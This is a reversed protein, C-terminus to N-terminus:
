PLSKNLIINTLEFNIVDLFLFFDNQALTSRTLQQRPERQRPSNGHDQRGSRAHNRQRRRRHRNPPYRPFRPLDLKREDGGPWGLVAPLGGPMTMSMRGVMYKAMSALQTVDQVRWIPLDAARYLLLARLAEVETQLRRSNTIFSKPQQPDTPWLGRRQRTYDITEEIAMEMARIGRATVFMREEQFQRMQYIFGMGEEGILNRSRCGCMTSSCSRRIRVAYCWSTSSARSALGRADEAARRDPIQEQAARWRRFYQLAPLDLRGARRQHDVNELRQDCLRRRRAAGHHPNELRRFRRLGESVGICGVLSAPSPRSWFSKSLNRAAMNKWLRRACRPRCGSRRASGAPASMAWPKPSSWKMPSISISAAM